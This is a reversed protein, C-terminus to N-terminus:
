QLCKMLIISELKRMPRFSVYMSLYLDYTERELSMNYSRKIMMM